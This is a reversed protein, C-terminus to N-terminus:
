RQRAPPDLEFRGDSSDRVQKRVSDRSLFGVALSSEGVAQVSDQGSLAFRLTTCGGAYVYFREGVYAPAVSELREWRRTGPEDTPVETAGRVDCSPTLEVTLPVSEPSDISASAFAFRALGTRVTVEGHRWSAPVASVCPILSASPVAQAMLVVAPNGARETDVCDADVGVDAEAVCGSLAAVLLGTALLRNVGVNWAREPLLRRAREDRATRRSCGGSV